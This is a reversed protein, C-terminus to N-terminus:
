RISCRRSRWAPCPMAPRRSAPTAPRFRTTSLCGGRCQGRCVPTPITSRWQARRTSLLFPTRPLVRAISVSPGCRPSYSSSDCLLLNSSCGNPFCAPGLDVSQTLRSSAAVSSSGMIAGSTHSVAPRGLWTQRALQTPLECRPVRRRAWRGRMERSAKKCTPRKPRQASPFCPAPPKSNHPWTRMCDDDAAQPQYTM